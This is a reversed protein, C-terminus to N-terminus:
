STISRSCRRVTASDPVPKRCREPDGVAAVRALWRSPAGLYLGRTSSSPTWRLAAVLPQHPDVPSSRQLARVAEHAGKGEFLFIVESESLFVAYRDFATDLEKAGLVSPEGLLAKARQRGEPRLRAALVFRDM